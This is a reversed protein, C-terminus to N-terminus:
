RDWRASFGVAVVVVALVLALRVLPYLLRFLHHLLYLVMPLSLHIVEQHFKLNLQHDVMRLLPSHFLLHLRYRHMSKRGQRLFYHLRYSM